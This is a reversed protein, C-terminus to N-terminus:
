RCMCPSYDGHTFSGPCVSLRLLLMQKATAPITHNVYALQQMFHRLFCNAFTAPVSLGFPLPYSLAIICNGQLSVIGGTCLCFRVWGTIRVSRPLGTYREWLSLLGYPFGMPMCTFSSPFLLLGATIAPISAYALDSLPSVEM